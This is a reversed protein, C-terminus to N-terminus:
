ENEDLLSERWHHFKIYYARTYKNATLESMYALQSVFEFLGVYDDKYQSRLSIKSKGGTL